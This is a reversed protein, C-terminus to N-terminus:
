NELLTECNFADSIRSIRLLVPCDPIIEKAAIVDDKERIGFMNQRNGSFYGDTFGSRSFIGRLMKMDPATGDLSKKLESVAAAIYEPRKMRGEIKLSDVGIERLKDVNELLSLDKLSLAASNKNGDASFPLRCAQGCCGRNASRSGIVASM